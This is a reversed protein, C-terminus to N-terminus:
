RPRSLASPGVKPKINEDDDAMSLAISVMDKMSEQPTAKAEEMWKQIKYKGVGRAALWNGMREIAGIKTVAGGMTAAYGAELAEGPRLRTREAAEIGKDFTLLDKAAQPTNENSMIQDEYVAGKGRLTRSRLKMRLSDDYALGTEDTRYDNRIAEAETTPATGKLSEGLVMEETSTSKQSSKKFEDIANIRNEIAGALEAGGPHGSERLKSSVEKARNLLMEKNKGLLAVDRPSMSVQQGVKANSSGDWILQNIRSYEELMNLVSPQYGIGLLKGSEGDRTFQSMMSEQFAKPNGALESGAFPKKVSTLNSPSGAESLLDYGLEPSPVPLKAGPTAELKEQASKFKKSTAQRDDVLGKVLDTELSSRSRDIDAASMSDAQRVPDNYEGKENKGVASILEIREPNATLGSAIKGRMHKAASTIMHPAPAAGIGHTATDVLSKEKELATANPDFYKNLSEGARKAEILPDIPAKLTEIAVDGMSQSQKDGAIAEGVGQTAAGTAKGLMSGAIYAGAGSLLGGTAIGAATGLASAAAGINTQKTRESLLKGYEDEMRSAEAQLKEAKAKAIRSEDLNSTKQSIQLFNNADEKMRNIKSEFRDKPYLGEQRTWRALDSIYPHRETWTRDQEPVEASFAEYSLPHVKAPANDQEKRRLGDAIGRLSGPQEAPESPTISSTSATASVGVSPTRAGGPVSGLDVYSGLNKGKGSSLANLIRQQSSEDFDEFKRPAAM